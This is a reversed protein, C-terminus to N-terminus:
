KSVEINGIVELEGLYIRDCMLRNKDCMGWSGWGMGNWVVEYRKGRHKVIDGEYIEVNNKDHLGTYQIFIEVKCWQPSHFGGVDVLANEAEFNCAHCEYIKGNSISRFKIERM